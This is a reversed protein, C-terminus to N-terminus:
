IMIQKKLANRNAVLMDRRAKNVDMLTQYELLTEKNVPIPTGDIPNRVFIKKKEIYDSFNKNTKIIQIKNTTIKLINKWIISM